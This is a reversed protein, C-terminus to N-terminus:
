DIQLHHEPRLISTNAVGTGWRGLLLGRRHANSILAPAVVQISTVDTGVDGRSTEKASYPLGPAPVNECSWVPPSGRHQKKSAKDINSVVFSLVYPKNVKKAQVRVISARTM